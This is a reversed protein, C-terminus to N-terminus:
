QSSRNSIVNDTSYFQHLGLRAAGAEYYRSVGGAFAYTCASACIGEHRTTGAKYSAVGTDFGMQRILKGLKIAGSLSGGGSNFFVISRPLKNQKVFREFERGTNEDIEGTAYIRVLGGNANVWEFNSNLDHSPAKFVMAQSCPALLM